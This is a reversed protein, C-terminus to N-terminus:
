KNNIIHKTHEGIKIQKNASCIEKEIEDSSVFAYKESCINKEMLAMLEKEQQESLNVRFVDYLITHYKEDTYRNEINMLKKETSLFEIDIYNFTEKSLINTDLVEEKFERWVGVERNKGSKFWKIIEPIKLAKVYFRLDHKNKADEKYKADWEDEIIFTKAHKYVGGVPQYQHAHKNGRVLFYKESGKVKIQLLYSLSVYVKRNRFISKCKLTNWFFRGESLFIEYLAVLPSTFGATALPTFLDKLLDSPTEIIFFRYVLVSMSTIFIITYILLRRM